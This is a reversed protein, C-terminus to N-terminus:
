KLTNIIQDNLNYIRDVFGQLLKILDNYNEKNDEVVKVVPLTTVQM